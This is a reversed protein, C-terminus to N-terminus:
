QGPQYFLAPYKVRQTFGVGSYKWQDSDLGPWKQKKTCKSFSGQIVRLRRKSIVKDKEAVTKAWLPADTDNSFHNLRLLTPSGAIEGSPLVM